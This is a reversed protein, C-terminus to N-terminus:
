IIKRLVLIPFGFAGPAFQKGILSKPILGWGCKSNSLQGFAMDGEELIEDDQVPIHTKNNYYSM